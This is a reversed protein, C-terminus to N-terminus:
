RGIEVKFRWGGDSAYESWQKHGWDYFVEILVLRAQEVYTDHNRCRPCTEPFHDQQPPWSWWTDGFDHSCVSIRRECYSCEFFQQVDNGQRGIM